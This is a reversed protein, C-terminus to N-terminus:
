QGPRFTRVGSSDTGFTGIYSPSSAEPEPPGPEFLRTGLPMSRPAARQPRRSPPLPLPLDDRDESARAHLSVTRAPSRPASAVDRRSADQQADIGHQAEKATADEQRSAGRRRPRPTTPIAAGAGDLAARALPAPQGPIAAAASADEAPAALAASTGPAAPQQLVPGAAAHEPGAPSAAGPAPAMRDPNASRSAMTGVEQSAPRAATDRAAPQPAIPGAMETKDPASAAAPSAPSPIPSPSAGLASNPTPASNLTPAPPLPLASTPPPTSTPPPASTLIRPAPPASADGAITRGAAQATPSALPVVPTAPPAAQAVPRTAGGTDASDAPMPSGPHLTPWGHRSIGVGLALSATMGSAVALRLMTGGGFRRARASAPAMPAARPAAGDVWPRVPVGGAPVNRFLAVPAAMEPEPAEVAIVPRSALRAQLFGAEEWSLVEMLGPEGALVLRLSAGAQCAFEIYRLTKRHLDQAGSILLVIHACTEDLTTLMRFGRELVADDQATLNPQGAIQAMLGSLGLGGPGAAAARLVRHRQGALQSAAEDLLAHGEDGEVLLVADGGTMVQDLLLHLAKTRSAPLIISVTDM